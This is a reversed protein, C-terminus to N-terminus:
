RNSKILLVQPTRVYRHLIQASNLCDEKKYPWALRGLVGAMEGSRLKTITKFLSGIHEQCASIISCLISQEDFTTVESDDSRLIEVLTELVQSLATVETTLSNAESPASKVTSLFNTLIKTVELSLSLLGAISASLSLPNM